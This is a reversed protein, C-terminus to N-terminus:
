ECSGCCRRRSLNSPVRKLSLHRLYLISKKFAISQAKACDYGRDRYFGRGLRWILTARMRMSVMRKGEEKQMDNGGSGSKKRNKGDNWLKKPPVRGAERPEMKAKGDKGPSLSSM